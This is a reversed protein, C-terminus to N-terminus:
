NDIVKEINCLKGATNFGQIVVRMKTCNDTNYFRLTQKQKEKTLLIEPNWYLTTRVDPAASSYPMAYDPSYFEKIVSYGPFNFSSVYKSNTNGMDQPLRRYIFLAPGNGSQGVFNPVYKILAVQDVPTYAADPFSMGVEDLYVAVRQPGRMISGGGFVSTLYRQGPPGTIDVGPIRSRILTELSTNNTVPNTVLDIMKAGPSAFLASTYRENVIQTPSRKVANLKVEKLQIVKTMFENYSKLESLNKNMKIRISDLLKSEVYYNESPLNNFNKVPWASPEELKVYVNKKSRKRTNYNFHLDATDSFMLSDIIFNGQADVPVTFFITASDAKDHLFFNLSGETIIDKKNEAYVKGRIRIYHLPQFTIQPNHGSLVQEWKFRRWGNTMMVLELADKTAKDNNQFYFAPDHVYGKIDSSLLFRSVINDRDPESVTKDADTIAVSYNGELTDPVSFTFVNKARRNINLTDTNLGANVKYEENNVFTIRELLPKGSSDFVTIQMIGSPFTGYRVPINIGEGEM